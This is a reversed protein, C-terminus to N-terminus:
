MFVGSLVTLGLLCLLSRLLICVWYVFVLQIELYYCFVILFIFFLGTELVRFLIFYKLINLWSPSFDSLLVNIFLVSSPVFLHFSITNEHVLLSLITLLDMSGLSNWSNLSIEMLIGICKECFYFFFGVINIFGYFVGFLWLLWLSSSVLSM